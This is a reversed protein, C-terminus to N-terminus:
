FGLSVLQCFLFCHFIMTPDAHLSPICTAWCIWLYPLCHFIKTPCIHFSPLGVLRCTQFATFFGLNTQMSPFCGLLAAHLSPRHFIMTLRCPSFAVWCTKMYPLCHFIRPSTLKVLPFGILFTTAM